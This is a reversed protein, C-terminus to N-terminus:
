IKKILYNKKDAILQKWAYIPTIKLYVSILPSFDCMSSGVFYRFFIGNFMESRCETRMLDESNDIAIVDLSTHRKVRQGM